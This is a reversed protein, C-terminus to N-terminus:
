EEGDAEGAAQEQAAAAQAQAAVQERTMPTVPLGPRARLLGDVIYTESGDLGAEVVITSDLQLAGPQVYRQEVVNGEGVVLVYKGGIDSGLAMEEVLVADRTEGGVARVRVFLGPFLVMDGNPVVARMQITGTQPNVTNDIFDIRGEHPFGDEDALGVLIRVPQEIEEETMEVLDRDLDEEDLVRNGLADPANGRRGAGAAQESLLKLLSLVRIEPVEFYVWIPNMRRVTTLLTNEGSGVLNGADVQHRSVQGAIPAEVTTYSFNLEANALDAEAGSVQAIAKDRRAVARDLDQESVADTERAIQIRELDSKSLALEANMAALSARAEDLAAQYATQEIVFLVQGQEVFTSPKFRIEELRGAVRARVEAEATARTTGTFDAHGAVDRIIPRAVTVPPAMPGQAEGSGCASLGTVAVAAAAILTATRLNSGAHGSGTNMMAIESIRTPTRM